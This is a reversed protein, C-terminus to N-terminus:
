VIDRVEKQTTKLRLAVEDVTIEVEPVIITEEEQLVQM